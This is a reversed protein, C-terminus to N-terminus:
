VGGSEDTNASDIREKATQEIGSIAKSIEEKGTELQRKTDKDLDDPLEEPAHTDLLALFTTSADHLQALDNVVEDYYNDRYAKGLRNRVKNMSVGNDSENQTNTAM